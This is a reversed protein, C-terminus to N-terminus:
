VDGAQGGAGELQPPPPIELSGWMNNRRWILIGGAMVVLSSLFFLIMGAHPLASIRLSEKVWTEVLPGIGPFSKIAELLGEYLGIWDYAETILSVLYAISCALLIVSGTVILPGAQRRLFLAAIVLIAVAIVASALWPNELLKFSYTPLDIEFSFVVDKWDLYVKAWPLATAAIICLVSGLAVM